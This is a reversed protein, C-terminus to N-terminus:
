AGNINVEVRPILRGNADLSFSIGVYEARPEFQEIAEKAAVALLPQAVNVPRDLITPDIGFERYGPVTGKPTALLLAINQMVSRVTDPENLVIRGLDVASVTHTLDMVGEFIGDAEFQSHGIEM